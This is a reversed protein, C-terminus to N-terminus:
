AGVGTVNFTFVPQDPDNTQIRITATRTGTATPLFAITFTGNEFTSPETIVFDNPDAGTIQVPPNATSTLNFSQDALGLTFSSVTGSTGVTQSGFDTGITASPTQNLSLQVPTSSGPANYSVTLRPVDAAVLKVIFTLTAGSPIGTPPNSGYGLAPPLVLVRTEGVKVGVLGGDFGSVASGEGIGFSFPASGVSTQSFVGNAYLTYEVSVFQGEAATLGTGQVATFTQYTSGDLSVTAYTPTTVTFSPASGIPSTSTAHLNDGSYTATVAYTGTYQNYENLTAVGSSNLTATGITTTGSSFTVTGSPMPGSAGTVTSTLTVTQGMIVSATSVSATTTTAIGIINENFGQSTSATYATQSGAAAPTPTYIATIVNNGPTLGAVAGYAVGGDNPGINVTGILTSGNEFTVTGTPVGGGPADPSVTAVLVVTTGALVNNAQSTVSIATADPNVTEHVVASTSTAFGGEGDYVATINHMGPTLSVTEGVAQHTTSNLAVAGILTTGDMFTVIGTPSGSTSTVTATLALFQGSVLGLSSSTLTTTTTNGVPNVVENVTFSTSSAFSSTGNYTATIPDTGVPLSGTFGVAQHTASNITATGILTTGDMFTVTGTPTGNGSTVTATLAILQGATEPNTSTVLTTTTDAGVHNVTVTLAASTSAKFGSDGGYLATISNTGLNLSSTFGTANGTTPDITATGILTSGNMFTVTGTPTGGSGSVNATLAVLQGVVIPNSSATLTTTSSVNGTVNFSLAASTSTAFAPLGEFTATINHMGSSLATFGVATQTTPDVTATGILTSGDSFSVVGGTSGSAGSVTATLAILQGAVPSNTSAVLTTTTALPASVVLSLPSSTSDSYGTTGNYVATISQTGSPLGSTYGIAQGTTANIDVTGILTSGDFFSVIGTPTPFGVPANVTATLAVLQGAALPNASATLTTTTTLNGGPLPSVTENVASSTSTAFSSTGGYIATISDTGIELASTFGVAQGSSVTATGILNTGDMFTVTGTPTGSGSTVTATLAVLQGVVIPNASPILTTTTAAASLFLRNELLEVQLPFLGAALRRARKSM